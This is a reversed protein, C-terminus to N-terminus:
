GANPATAARRIGLVTLIGGIYKLVTAFAGCTAATLVEAGCLEVMGAQAAVFLALGWATMSKYVPKGGFMASLDLVPIPNSM